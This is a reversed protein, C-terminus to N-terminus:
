PNAESGFDIEGEPLKEHMVAQALRARVVGESRIFTRGDPRHAVIMKPGKPTDEFMETYEEEDPWGYGDHPADEEALVKNQANTRM